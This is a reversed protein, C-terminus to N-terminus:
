EEGRFFVRAAGELRCGSNAPIASKYNKENKWGEFYELVLGFSLFVNTSPHSEKRLYRRKEIEVRIFENHFMGAGVAGSLGMDAPRYELVEHLFQDILKLQKKDRAYVLRLGLFAFIFRTAANTGLKDDAFEKYLHELHAGFIDLLQFATHVKANKNGNLVLVNRMASAYGNHCLIGHSMWEKYGYVYLAGSLKQQLSESANPNDFSDYGQDALEQTSQEHIIVNFYEPIEFRRMKDENIERLLEDLCLALRTNGDTVLLEGTETIKTLVVVSLTSLNVNDTILHALLKQKHLEVDRQKEICSLSLLDKLSQKDTTVRVSSMSNFLNKPLSKANFKNLRRTAKYQQDNQRGPVPLSEIYKRTTSSINLVSASKM